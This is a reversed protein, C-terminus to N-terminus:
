TAYLKKLRINVYWIVLGTRARVFLPGVRRRMRVPLTDDTDAEGAQQRELRWRRTRMGTAGAGGHRAARM